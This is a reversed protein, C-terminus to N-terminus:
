RHFGDEEQPKRREKGTLTGGSCTLSRCSKQRESRGPKKSRSRSKSRLRTSERIRSGGHNARASPRVQAHVDPAVGTGGRHGGEVHDARNLRGRGVQTLYTTAIGSELAGALGPADAIRCASRLCPWSVDWSAGCDSEGGGSRRYKCGSCM